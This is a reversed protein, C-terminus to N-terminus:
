RTLKREDGLVPTIPFVSFCNVNVLSLTMKRAMSVFLFATRGNEPSVLRGTPLPILCGTGGM